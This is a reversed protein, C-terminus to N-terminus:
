VGLAVEGTIVELNAAYAGVENRRGCVATHANVDVFDRQNRRAQEFCFVVIDLLHGHQAARLTREIAAVRGAAGGIHNRSRRVEIAPFAVELPLVAVVIM